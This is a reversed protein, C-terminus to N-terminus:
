DDTCYWVVGCPGAVSYGYVGGCLSQWTGWGATEGM